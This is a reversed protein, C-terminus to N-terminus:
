CQSFFLPQAEGTLPLSVPLPEQRVYQKLVSEFIVQNKTVIRILNESLPQFIRPGM